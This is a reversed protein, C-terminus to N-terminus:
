RFNFEEYHIKAASVGAVIFQKRLSDTMAIPGCLYIEKGSLPGSIAIIKEVTLRGDLNSYLVHAKFGSNQAQAQEIEDLYLAEDPSRVSYFFDIEHQLGPGFDRMWSLFPTLGIGGAIWIQKRLGTKYNFMGYGGEIIAQSGTKLTNYLRETYDGSAKVALKIQKKDPASSITFPHQEKLKQPDTFGIFLFQGAQYQIPESVPTLTIELTRGNLQRTNEVQYGHHQKIFNGLLEKIIYVVVASLAFALVYVLVVPSRKILADLVYLHLLGIIFFIGIFRHSFKWIHYPLKLSGGPVPLPIRPALAVIIWVTFGILALKGLSINLHFGGSISMTFFHAFLLSLAFIALKKHTQYMQDLGGFFPELFRPRSSLIIGCSMLILASSSFIEGIYQQLYHSRGDDEPPFAVWLLVNLVILLAIFVNGTKKRQM